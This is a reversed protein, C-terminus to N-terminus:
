RSLWTDQNDQIVREPHLFADFRRDVRGGQVLDQRFEAREEMGEFEVARTWPLLVPVGDCEGASVPPWDDGASVPMAAFRGGGNVQRICGAERLEGRLDAMPMALHEQH